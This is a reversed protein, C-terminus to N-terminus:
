SVKEPAEVIPITPSAIEGDKPNSKLRRLDGVIHHFMEILEFRPGGIKLIM